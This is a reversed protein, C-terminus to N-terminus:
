ARTLQDAGREDERRLTAALLLVGVSIASDAASFTPWHWEGLHLDVFDVVAGLRVRDMLDGVGGGAILGAALDRMVRTDFLQGTRAVGILLLLGTVALAVALAVPLGSLVGFVVGTSRTLRLGLLGEVLSVSRGDVLTDVAWAKLTQDLGVIALATLWALPHLVAAAWGRRGEGIPALPRRM